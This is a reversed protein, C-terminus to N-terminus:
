VGLTPQQLTVQPTCTFQTAGLVPPQCLCTHSQMICGDRVHFKQLQMTTLLIGKDDATRKQESLNQTLTRKLKGLM